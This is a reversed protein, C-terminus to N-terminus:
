QHVEYMGTDIVIDDLLIRIYYLGDPVRLGDEDELDWSASHNGASQTTNSLITRVNNMYCNLVIIDVVGEQPLDYSFTFGSTVETFPYTSDACGALIVLTATALVALYKNM